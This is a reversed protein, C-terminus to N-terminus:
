FKLLLQIVRRSWRRDLVRIPEKILSGDPHTVPLQVSITATGVHKKLQSVHFTPHIRTTSPLTLKYAVKGICSKVPFPGFYLKQNRFKKLSHQRYPQLKVYVLDGVTFERDSHKRDAIQKVREQTRKLHFRLLDNVIEKYQLCKEIAAVRSLGALYPLHIPLEQEYLAEYPTIHIATHYNTNYWWEASPLWTAWESPKEGSMCRLYGELCKNLAETQGDTQPHYATSLHLQTGLNKFLEQWFHSM